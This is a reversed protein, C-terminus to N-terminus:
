RLNLFLAFILKPSSSSAFKSIGGTNSPSAPPSSSPSFLPSGPIKSAILNELDEVKSSDGAASSPPQPPGAASHIDVGKAANGLAPTNQLLLQNNVTARQEFLRPRTKMIPFVESFVHRMYDRHFLNGPTQSIALYQMQRIFRALRNRAADANPANCLQTIEDFARTPQMTNLPNTIEQNM